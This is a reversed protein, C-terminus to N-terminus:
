GDAGVALDFRLDEGLRNNDQTFDGAVDGCRLLDIDAVVSGHVPVDRRRAHGNGLARVEAAANVHVPGALALLPLLLLLRLRIRWRRLLLLIRRLIRLLMRLLLALAYARLEPRMASDVRESVSRRPMRPGRLGASLAVASTDTVLTASTDYGVLASWLNRALRWPLSPGSSRSRPGTTPLLTVNKPSCSPQRMRTSSMAASM